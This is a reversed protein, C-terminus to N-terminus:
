VAFGSPNEGVREYASRLEAELMLEHLDASTVHQSLFLQCIFGLLLSSTVYIYINYLKYICWYLSICDSYLKVFCIILMYTQYVSISLACVHAIYLGAYQMPLSTNTYQRGSKLIEFRLFVADGCGRRWFFIDGWVKQLIRFRDKDASLEILPPVSAALSGSLSILGQDPGVDCYTAQLAIFSLPARLPEVPTKLSSWKGGMGKRCRGVSSSDLRFQLLWRSPPQTAGWRFFISTVVPDPNGGNETQFVRLVRQTALM